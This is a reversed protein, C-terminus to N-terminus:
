IWRPQAKPTVAPKAQKAAAAAAAQKAAEAQQATAQQAAAPPAAEVQKAAAAAQRAAEAEAAQQAKITAIEGTYFSILSRTSAADEEARNIAAVIRAREEAKRQLTLQGRSLLGTMEKRYTAFTKVRREDIPSNTLRNSRAVLRDEFARSSADHVILLENLKAIAREIDALEGRKKGLESEYYELQGV